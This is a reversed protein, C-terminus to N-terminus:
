SPPGAPEPPEEQSAAQAEAAGASRPTLSPFDHVERWERARRLAEQRDEPSLSLIAGRSAMGAVFSGQQGALLLWMVGRITDKPVGKGDRYLIGLELMAKGSGLEAATHFWALALDYDQEVGRGNLYSMALNAQARGHGQEAAKSLWGFAEEPREEGRHAIGETDQGFLLALGLKFQEDPDTPGTGEAPLAVLEYPGTDEATAAAEAHGQRLSRARREVRVKRGAVAPAAAAEGASGTESGAPAAGAPRAEPAGPVVGGTAGPEEARGVGLGLMLMLMLSLCTLTPSLSLLRRSQSLM